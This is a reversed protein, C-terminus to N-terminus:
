RGLVGIASILYCDGISGQRVNMGSEGDKFVVSDASPRVWGRCEGRADSPLVDNNGKFENDTYEAGNLTEKLKQYKLLSDHM